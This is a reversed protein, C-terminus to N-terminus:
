NVVEETEELNVQSADITEKRTPKELECMREYDACAQCCLGTIGSKKIYKRHSITTTKGCTGCEGEKFKFAPLESIVLNDNEFVIEGEIEFEKHKGKGGKILNNIGDIEGQPKREKIKKSTAEKEQKESEKEEGEIKKLEQEIANRICDLCFEGETDNKKFAWLDTKENNCGKCIGKGCNKSKAKLWEVLFTEYDDYVDYVGKEINLSRKINKRLEEKYCFFDRTSLYLSDHSDQSDHSYKVVVGLWVRKQHGVGGRRGDEMKTLLRMQDIFKKESFPVIKKEKCYECFTAFFETKPTHKEVDIKCWDHFFGFVPNSMRQYEEEIEEASSSGTFKRNKLLRQLGEIAINLLGTLEEKTTLKAILEEDANKGITFRNPFPIMTIRRFFALSNDMTVPIKNCSYILKAFNRFTFSDKFKKETSLLDGGTLAKLNSTRKLDADSLDAVINVAKGYLNAAEFRQDLKQLGVASVNEEGIFKSILSLLVSKGNEGEGLLLFWKQFPYDHYLTYGIIEFILPIQDEYVIEKVFESIHPCDADPNYEVSMRVTSLFDPTHPRLKLTKISLLGNELNLTWPDANLEERKIYTSRRIHNIIENVDYTTLKPKLVRECEARIVAEGTYHYYGEDYYLVEDTDRLTKFNFLLLLADAVKSHKIGIVFGEPNYLLFDPDFTLRNEQTREKEGTARFATLDEIQKGKEENKSKIEEIITSLFSVYEQPNLEAKIHQFVDDRKRVQQYFEFSVEVEPLIPEDDKDISAIIKKANKRKIYLIGFDKEEFTLPVSISKLDEERKQEIKKKHYQVPNRIEKCRENPICVGLEGLEPHPYGSGKTRIKECSPVFCTPKDLHECGYWSEFINSTEANWEDAKGKFINYAKEEPVGVYRLYSALVSLARTAGEGGKLDKKAIINRICPAWDKESVEENELTVTRTGHTKKITEKAKDLFPNLLNGFNEIDDQYVLWNKAKEITEDSIPLSAEKLDIKPNHKDLPIVAYPYKKHISLITKVQRKSDYNLKDFKVWEIAEPYKEFFKSAVDGIFLDFARQIIEIKYVREKEDEAIMGLRPHLMCYVGGGSFALGFSGVGANLLTDAFFKLARGLWEIVGPDNIDKNKAKDLDLFFSHYVTDERGGIQESIRHKDFDYHKEINATEAAFLQATWYLTRYKSTLTDYDHDDPYFLKATGKERNTKWWIKHDGILARFAAGEKCLNLIVPQCRLYHKAIVEGKLKKYGQESNNDSM